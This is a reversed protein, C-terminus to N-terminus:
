DGHTIGAQELALAYWQPYLGEAQAQALLANVKETLSDNGKKLLILNDTLEASLTFRFEAKALGANAAIIADANGEAVALADIKGTLLLSVGEQLDQFPVTYADKLQESILWEQLSARQAGIYVGVLDEPAAFRSANEATTLLVQNTTNDSAHYTDSLNFREARQPLWSFGSIALDVQGKAVADQCEGFDMAVLKLEMDLGEALYEALYVDFGVIQEESDSSVTVFEMPPFDPSMAVWLVPTEKDGCGFLSLTMLIALLFICLRKM